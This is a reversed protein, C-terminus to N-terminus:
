ILLRLFGTDSGIYDSAFRGKRSCNNFGPTNFRRKIAIFQTSQLDKFHQDHTIKCLLIVSM